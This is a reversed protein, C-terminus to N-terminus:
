GEGMGKQVHVSYHSSTSTFTTQRDIGKHIYIYIKLIMNYFPLPLILTSTKSYCIPIITEKLRLRFMNPIKSM